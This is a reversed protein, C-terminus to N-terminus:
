SLAGESTSEPGAPEVHLTLGEVRRVIVTDGIDASGNDTEAQWLAGELFVQGRPALPTRV